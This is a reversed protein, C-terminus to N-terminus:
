EEDSLISCYIIWNRDLDSYSISASVTSFDPATGSCSAGQNAAERIAVDIQELRDVLQTIEQM